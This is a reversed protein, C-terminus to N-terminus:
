PRDGCVANKNYYKRMCLIIVVCRRNEAEMKERKDEM